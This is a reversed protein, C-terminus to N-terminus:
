APKLTSSVSQSFFLLLKFNLVPSALTSIEARNSLQKIRFLSGLTGSGGEDTFYSSLLVCILETNNSKRENGIHTWTHPRM